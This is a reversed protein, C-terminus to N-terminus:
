RKLFVGDDRRFSSCHRRLIQKRPRERNRHDWDRAHEANAASSSILRDFRRADHPTPACAAGIRSASRLSRGEAILRPLHV